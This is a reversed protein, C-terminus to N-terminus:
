KNDEDEVIYDCDLNSCILYPNNKNNKAIVTEIIKSHCIPCKNKNKKM